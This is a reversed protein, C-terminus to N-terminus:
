CRSRSGDTLEWRGVLDKATVPVTMPGLEQSAFMAMVMAAGM